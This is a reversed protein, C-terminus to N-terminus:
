SVIVLFSWSRMIKLEWLSIVLQLHEINDFSYGLKKIAFQQLDQM